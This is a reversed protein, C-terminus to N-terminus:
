SRSNSLLFHARYLLFLDYRDTKLWYDLITAGTDIRLSVKMEWFSFKMKWQVYAFIQGNSLSVKGHSDLLSSFNATKRFERRLKVIKWLDEDFFKM